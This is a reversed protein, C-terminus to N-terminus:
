KRVNNKNFSAANILEHTFPFTKAQLCNIRHPPFKFATSLTIVHYSGTTKERRCDFELAQLQIGVSKM